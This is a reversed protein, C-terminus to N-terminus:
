GHLGKFLGLAGSAAGVFWGLFGLIRGRRHRGAAAPDRALEAALRRETIRRSWIQTTWFIEAVLLAYVSWYALPPAKLANEISWAGTCFLVGACNAFGMRWLDRRERDDLAGKSAFYSGLLVGALGGAASVALGGLLSLAKAGTLKLAAKAGVSAAVAGGASPLGAMVAATFPTGPKSHDLAEGFREAMAERLRERARSLRKKVAEERLGLLAAVQAASQEERYYLLVVERTEDPLEDIARFVLEREEASTMEELAGPRPDAVAALLDDQGPQGPPGPRGAQAPARKRRRLFDHAHNRALQRLWPLFSAPSRLQRLGSWAALFVEQAVDESAPLDRVIALAISAVLNRHRDVLRAYALRDGDRAGLVEEQLALAEM